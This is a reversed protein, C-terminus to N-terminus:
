CNQEETYFVTVRDGLVIPADPDAGAPLTSYRSFDRAYVRFASTPVDSQLWVNEHAVAGM